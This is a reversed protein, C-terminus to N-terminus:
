RSLTPLYIINAFLKPNPLAPLTFSGLYIRDDPPRRGGQRVDWRCCDKDRDYVGAFLKYEGPPADNPLGVRHIQDIFEGARYTLTSRTGDEPQKDDQAALEGDPGIVHLFIVGDRDPQANVQWYTHVAAVASRTIPQSMAYGRLQFAAATGDVPNAIQPPLSVADYGVIQIWGLTVQDIRQGARFRELHLRYWGTSLTPPLALTYQDRVPEDAPWQAVPFAPTGVLRQTATIENLLTRLSLRTEWAEVGARAVASPQACWTLVIPLKSGYRVQTAYEARMLGVDSARWLDCAARPQAHQPLVPMTQAPMLPSILPSVPRGSLSLATAKGASHPWETLRVCCRLVDAPLDFKAQQYSEGKEGKRVDLVLQYPLHPLGLPLPLPYDVRQVPQNPDGPLIDIPFQWTWWVEENHMLRVLVKYDTVQAAAGRYTWFLSLLANPQEWYPNGASLTYSLLGPNNSSPLVLAGPLQTASRQTQLQILQLQVTRSRGPFTYVGQLTPAVLLSDLESGQGLFPDGANAYWVRRANANVWARSPTKLDPERLYRTPMIQIPMDSLALALTAEPAYLSAVIVDGPQWNQRIFHAASRWDDQWSSTRVFSQVLGYTTPLLVLAASLAAAMRSWRNGKLLEAVAGIALIHILPVIYVLYRFTPRNDILLSLLWWVIFSLAIYFLFAFGHFRRMLVAGLISLGALVILFTQGTPDAANLGFLTGGLVEFFLASMGAPELFGTELRSLGMNVMPRNTALLVILLAICFGAVILLSRLPLIRRRLIWLLAVAVQGMLLGAMSYHVLVSCVSLLMWSVWWRRSNFRLSEIFAYTSLCTLVPLWAYMRIEGSFWQASPSLVALLTALLAMRPSLLRRALVWTLPVALVSGFGSWLRLAFSSPGVLISWIKLLAFYIFPHIDSTLIGQRNIVNRFVYSWSDWVRLITFSEDLWISRADIEIFRVGATFLTLALVAWM